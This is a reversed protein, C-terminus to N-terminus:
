ANTQGEKEDITMIQVETRRTHSTSRKSPFRTMSKLVATAKISSYPVPQFINTIESYM